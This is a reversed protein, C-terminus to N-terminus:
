SGEGEVREEEQLRRHHPAETESDEEDRDAGVDGPIQHRRQRRVARGLRGGVALGEYGM